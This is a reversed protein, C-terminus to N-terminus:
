RHQALQLRELNEKSAGLLRTMEQALLMQRLFVCVAVLMIGILTVTVRFPRLGSAEPVLLLVWLGIVPLSLLALLFHATAIRGRTLGRLLM